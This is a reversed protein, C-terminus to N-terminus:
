QLPAAQLARADKFRQSSSQGLIWKRAPTELFYFSCVSAALTFALYGLYESRSHGLSMRTFAHWIPIHILYLGYSAEGLVVLWRLSLTAEVLRYGSSSGLILMISLPILMGDKLHYFPLNKYEIVAVAFIIAAAILMWPAALQIRQGAREDALVKFHWKALLIGIFFEHLHFIPNYMILDPNIHARVAISTLSMAVIYFTAALPISLSDKLKWLWCGAIPFLLYFVAEVALSWSPNNIQRLSVKWVQMMLTNGTFVVGSKMLAIAVKNRSLEAQLLAPFDLALSAILLPYIRAFRARWFKGRDVGGPRRLYVHSLIYGSLTFFFGVSIFSIALFNGAIGSSNQTHGLVVFLAAFFRLSTLPLIKERAPM